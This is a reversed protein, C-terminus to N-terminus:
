AREQLLLGTSGALYKQLALLEEPPFQRIVEGSEEKIVKVVIRDTEDDVEIKLRPNATELAKSVQAAARDITARDVPVSPADHSGPHTRAATPQPAAAADAPESGRGPTTLLDAKPTVERIM